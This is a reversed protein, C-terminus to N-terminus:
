NGKGSMSPKFGHERLIKQYDHSCYQRGRDSHVICGPPPSRLAGRAGFANTRLRLNAIRMRCWRRTGGTMTQLAFWSLAVSAGHEMQEADVDRCRSRIAHCGAPLRLGCRTRAFNMRRVTGM